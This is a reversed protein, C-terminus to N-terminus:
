EFDPMPDPLGLIARAQAHHREKVHGSVLGIATALVAADDSFGFGAVIDPILDTPIVFYALAAVLVGKVRRPTRPDMACFYAAALDEAFPVKGAVRLFKKWFGQEVTHTNRAIVAPLQLTPPDPLDQRMTM